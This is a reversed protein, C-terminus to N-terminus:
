ALPQGCEASGRVCSTAREGRPRNLESVGDQAPCEVVRQAVLQDGAVDREQDFCAPDRGSLDLREPGLLKAEEQGLCGVIPEVRQPQQEDGEPEPATFCQAQM